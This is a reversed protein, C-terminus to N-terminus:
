SAAWRVAKVFERAGPTLPSAAMYAVSVPPLELRDSLQLAQLLSRFPGHELMRKPIISLLDSEAVLALLTLFSEAQITSRPLPLRQSRFFGHLYRGHLGLPGGFVWDADALEGLSTAQSRPHGPRCAVAIENSCMREVVLDRDAEGPHLPGVYLDVSGSRLLSAGSPFLGDVVLVEVGPQKNRFRHLAQPVLTVGAVPAVSVRLSAGEAGRMARLEDASRRMEAVILRARPLFANGYPSLTVGRASRVFLRVNFEEELLRLSKSLAPQTVGLQRAASRVSSAEAVGIFEQLQKLRM